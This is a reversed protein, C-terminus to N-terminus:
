HREGSPDGRDLAGLSAPDDVDRLVGDDAMELVSLDAAYDSLIARAGRDGELGALVGFHRRPWLIPNGWASKYAPVCIPAGPSTEFREALSAIHESRVGPMDGLCILVGALGSDLAHIGSRISTSMGEAFAPNHVFEVPYGDLVDRVQGAEHGTVVYIKQIGAQIVAEVVRALIAKGRAPLLLKNAEGMRASQGAALVVAGVAGAEPGPDSDGRQRVGSM